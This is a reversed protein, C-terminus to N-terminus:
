PLLGVQQLNYHTCVIRKASLSFHFDDGIFWHMSTAPLPPVALETGPAAQQLRASRDAFATHLQFYVRGLWLASIVLISGAIAVTWRRVRDRDLMPAVYAMTAIVWLVVTAFYLRYGTKPSALLTANLLGGAVFTGFVFMRVSNALAPLRGRRRLYHVYLGVPALVLASLLPLALVKLNAITGRAVIRGLISHQQALGSYREQQGPAFYLAAYGVIVAVLGAIMWFKLRRGRRHEVTLMATIALIFAPGTHENTLGCLLGWPIIWIAVWRPNPAAGALCRRYPWLLVLYMAPGLVYNGTYPRYFFMPGINFVAVFVLGCLLVFGAADQVSRMRPWRGLAHAWMLLLLGIELLPTVLMHLRPIFMAATFVQGIRPNNHWYNYKAVGWLSNVSLEGAQQAFHFNWGDLIVPEWATCALMTLWLGGITLAWLVIGNSGRQPITNM